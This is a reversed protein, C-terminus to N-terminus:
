DALALAAQVVSDDRDLRAVRLAAACGRGDFADGMGITIGVLTDDVFVGSGQEGHCNPTDDLEDLLEGELCGTVLWRAGPDHEHKAVYEHSVASAGCSSEVPKASLTAPAVAVVPEELVLVALSAQAETVVDAVTARPALDAMSPDGFAVSFAEPYHGAICSAATLAVDPAVLVVGCWPSIPSSELELRGSAVLPAEPFVAPEGLAVPARSEVEIREEEIPGAESDCGALSLASTLLLARRM